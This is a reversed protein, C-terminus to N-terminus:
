ATGTAGDDLSFQVASVSREFDDAYGEFVIPEDVYHVASERATGSAPSAPHPSVAM